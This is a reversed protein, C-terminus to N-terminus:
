VGDPTAGQRDWHAALGMPGQRYLVAPWRRLLPAREPRFGMRDAVDREPDIGPAVEVLQVGRATLRFSARDTVYWVEAGRSLARRASFTPAAVKAVFKPVHGEQEISVGEGPSEPLKMREGGATLPAAFVIRRTASTIDVFGGPGPMARDFRHVAVNGAADVQAAGLIAWDLHAGQYLTFTDASALLYRPGISGGFADGGAPLGGIPGHEVSLLVADALGEEALVAGVLTPIGYGLNVLQGPGLLMAVRRAIVKRLTLATAHGEPEVAWQGTLAPDPNSSAVPLVADVLFGPVDIQRASLSGRRVVYRVEALVRGGRSQAAMAMDLVAQRIPEGTLSLNGDRDAVTARVVAVDVSPSRYFLCPHGDVSTRRIWVRTPPVRNFASGGGAGPDLFTDLGVPSLIGPQSAAAARLLQFAIGMPLCHAEVRDAEVLDAMGTLDWVRFASTVITHVLGPHALRDIGTGARIGPVAPCYLTLDRPHGCRLYAEEIGALLTDPLLQLGNGSLAVTAGDPVLSAWADPHAADLIRM